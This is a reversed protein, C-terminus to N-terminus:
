TVSEGKPRRRKRDYQREKELFAPNLRQKQKYNRMHKRRERIFNQEALKLAKTVETHTYLNEGDDANDCSHLKGMIKEIEKEDMEIM